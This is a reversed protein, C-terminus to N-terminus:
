ILVHRTPLLTTFVGLSYSQRSFLSCVGPIAAPEATASYEVEGWTPLYKPDLLFARARSGNALFVVNANAVPQGSQERLKVVVQRNAAKDIFTAEGLANTKKQDSTLRNPFKSALVKISGDNDVHCAENDNIRLYLQGSRDATFAGGRRVTFIPGDGIKGLLTAYPLSPVTKCGQYIQQDIKKPYGEPGVYPFYRYDVTWTGSIHSITFQKGRELRLPTQQWGSMSSVTIPPAQSFATSSMILALPLGVALLLFFRTSAVLLKRMVAEEISLSPLLTGLLM